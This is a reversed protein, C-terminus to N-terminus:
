GEASRRRMLLVGGAALLALTGPEPVPQAFFVNAGVFENVGTTAALVEALGTGEILDLYAGLDNEDELLAEYFFADGDRLATFQDRFVIALTEGIGAGPATDEALLGVFADVEDVAGVGYVSELAAALDADATIDGFDMAEALGLAARIENFTGIGHDRGRQLNLSFLDLALAREGFLRSRVDEVVETDFANAEQGVLGRVLADLSGPAEILGPQFFTEFLNLHGRGDAGVFETGDANLRLLQSNLMTHGFRFAATTFEVSLRPDVTADFGTYTDLAVGTNLLIAPLWEEYTIRQLTAANISRATEYVQDPTWGPNEAALEDALVNHYRTFLTHAATLGAQENARRDGAILLEPLSEAPAGPTAANPLGFTNRPLFAEGGVERVLLRGTGTERLAAQRVADSGYVNSGDIFTTLVNEFQRPNGPGSGAVHESRVFAIERGMPGFAPDNAVAGIFEPEEEDELTLSLDHDLLQGFQWFFSSLGTPNQDFTTPDQIAIANSIARPNPGDILESVGDAYRAPTLRILVDGAEGGQPNPQVGDIPRIQTVQARAPSFAPLFASFAVACAISGPLSARLLM